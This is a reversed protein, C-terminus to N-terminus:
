TLAWREFYREFGFAPIIAEEVQPDFVSYGRAALTEILRWVGEMRERNRTSGDVTITAGDGTMEIQIDGGVLLVPEFLRLVSQRLHLREATAERDAELRALRRDAKLLAEAANERLRWADALRAEEQPEFADLRGGNVIEALREMAALAGRMADAPPLTPDIRLLSIKYAM